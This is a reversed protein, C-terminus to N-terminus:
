STFSIQDSVPPVNLRALVKCAEETAQEERVAKRVNASNGLHKRCSGVGV